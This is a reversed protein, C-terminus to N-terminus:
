RSVRGDLRTYSFAMIPKFMAQSDHQAMDLVSYIGVVALGNLWEQVKPGCTLYETEHGARRV